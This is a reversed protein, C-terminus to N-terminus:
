RYWLDANPSNVSYLSEIPCVYLLTFIRDLITLRISLSSIWVKKGRAAGDARVNQKRRVFDAYGLMGFDHIRFTQLRFTATKTVERAAHIEDNLLVMVGRGISDPSAAVRVANVLNMKADTSLGSLPRQSGVVVVPM